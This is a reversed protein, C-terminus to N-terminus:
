HTKKREKEHAGRSEAKIRGNVFLYTGRVSSMCRSGMQAQLNWVFLKNKYTQYNINGVATCVCM